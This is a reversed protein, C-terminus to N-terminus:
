PFALTGWVVTVLMFLIFVVVLLVGAIHPLSIIWGTQLKAQRLQTLEQRIASLEDILLQLRGDDM